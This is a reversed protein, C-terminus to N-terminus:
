LYLVFLCGGIAGSISIIIILALLENSPLKYRIKFYYYYSILTIPAFTQIVLFLPRTSGDMSSMLKLSSLVFFFSLGFLEKSKKFSYM